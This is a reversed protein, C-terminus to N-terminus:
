GSNEENLTVISIETATSTSSDLRSFRSRTRGDTGATASGPAINNNDHDEEIETGENGPDEPVNLFKLLKRKWFRRETLDAYDICNRCQLERPLTKFDTKDIRVIILCNDRKNLLRYKALDLEYKCYKSQIFNSSFVAIIKYSAYVSEAMSDVFPVGPTFDKYHICIKLSHEEELLRLLKKQVWSEDEKNYIIFAHFKFDASSIFIM